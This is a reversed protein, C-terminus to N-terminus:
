SLLLKQERSVDAINGRAYTCNWALYGGKLLWDSRSNVKLQVIRDCIALFMSPLTIFYEVCFKVVKQRKLCDTLLINIYIPSLRNMLFILCKLFLSQVYIFIMYICQPSSVFILSGRLQSCQQVILQFLVLFFQTRM